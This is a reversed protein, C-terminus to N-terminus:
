ENLGALALNVNTWTYLVGDPTKDGEYNEMFRNTAHRLNPTKGKVTKRELCDLAFRYLPEDNAIWLSINWANYSRHGQYPKM